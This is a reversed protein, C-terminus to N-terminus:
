SVRLNATEATGAQDYYVGWTSRGPQSPTYLFTKPIIMCGSRTRGRSPISALSLRSTLRPRGHGHVSCKGAAAAAAVEAAAAAVMKREVQKQIQSAGYPGERREPICACSSCLVTVAFEPVVATVVVVQAVCASGAAAAAAAAM